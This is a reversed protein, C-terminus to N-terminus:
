YYNITPSNRIKVNYCITKMGCLKGKIEYFM